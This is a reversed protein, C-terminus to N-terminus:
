RSRQKDKNMDKFINNVYDYKSHAPFLEEIYIQILCSIVCYKRQKLM